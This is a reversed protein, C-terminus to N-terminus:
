NLAFLRRIIAMVHAHGEESLRTAFPAPLVTTGGRSKMMATLQKKVDANNSQRASGDTLALGGQSKNLGAM